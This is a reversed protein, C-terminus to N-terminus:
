RPRAYWMHGYDVTIAIGRSLSAVARAWAADRAGGLEVRNGADRPAEAWWRDAWAGDDASVPDGPMEAGTQPEVLQYRLVGSDDFEAVDLPVNDLWETAVVVGAV